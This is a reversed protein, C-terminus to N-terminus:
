QDKCRIVNIKWYSTVGDITLKPQGACVPMTIRQIEACCFTTSGVCYFPIDGQTIRSTANVSFLGKDEYLTATSCNTSSTLAVLAGTCVLKSQVPTITNPMYCYDEPELGTNKLLGANATITLFTAM